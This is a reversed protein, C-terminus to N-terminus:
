LVDWGVGNSQITTVAYAAALVITLAGDILEAGAADVTVANAGADVKKVTYRKGPVSAAKPLTVIFAGATADARIFGESLTATFAAVVNKPTGFSNFVDVLLVLAAALAPLRQNLIGVLEAVTSVKTSITTFTPRLM